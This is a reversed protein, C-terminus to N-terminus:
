RLPNHMLHTSPVIHGLLRFHLFRFVVEPQRNKKVYSTLTASQPLPTNEQYDQYSYAICLLAHMVSDQVVTSSLRLFELKSM